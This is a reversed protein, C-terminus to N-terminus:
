FFGSNPASSTNRDGIQGRYKLQACIEYPAEEPNLDGGHKYMTFLKFLRKRSANSVRAKGLKYLHHGEPSMPM